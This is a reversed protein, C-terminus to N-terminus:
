KGPKDCTIASSDLVRRVGAHEHAPLRALLTAAPLGSRPHRWAPAVERLPVLVFARRHMEPHPLLL